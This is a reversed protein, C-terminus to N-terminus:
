ENKHKINMTNKQLKIRRAYYYTIIGRIGWVSTISIAAGIHKYNVVLAYTAFFGFLSCAAIINRLIREQGKLVLYNTGYANMMFIFIPSIAMIKIVTAAESYAPSYFNYVIFDAGFFLVLSVVVSISFSMVEYFSHKDMRRSLFPYFTRSLVNTIQQSINIFRNGADFIGTSFKGWFRELFITSMNTYLNPLILSIFMNTSGSIANFIDKVSVRVFRYKYKIIIFYFAGIGAVFFGLGNIIPIYIYDERERVFIFISATFLIKIITSIVSSYKMKEIAQFFWEPYIAYGPVLLFTCLLVTSNRQFQPIFLIMLLLLLFSAVTLVLRAIMIKSFIFSTQEKNDKVRAIDRVGTYNFGYDVLTQFFVIVSTAFALTGFNEVGIVKAIYPLTFFPLVYGVIQLLSLSIFNELLVKHEKSNFINKFKQLM